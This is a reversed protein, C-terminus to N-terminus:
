EYKLHMPVESIHLHPWAYLTTERGNRHHCSYVRIGSHVFHSRSGGGHATSGSLLFYIMLLWHRLVTTSLSFGPSQPFFGRDPTTMSTKVLSRKWHCVSSRNLCCQRGLPYCASLCRCHIPSSQYLAFHTKRGGLLTCTSLRGTYKCYTGVCSTGDSSIQLFPIPMASLHHKSISTSSSQPKHWLYSKSSHFYNLSLSHYNLLFSIKIFALHKRNSLLIPFHKCILLGVEAWTIHRQSRLCGELLCDHILYHLKNLWNSTTNTEKHLHGVDRDVVHSGPQPHSSLVKKM